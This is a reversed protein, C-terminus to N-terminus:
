GVITASKEHKLYKELLSIIKEPYVPKLIYENCGALYAETKSQESAYATLMLIPVDRNGKRFIRMCEIGNILPVLFDMLVLDTKWNDHTIFDVFDKGNRFVKVEAGTSKLLTEYYRISPIDDEVIIIKKGPLQLDNINLTM